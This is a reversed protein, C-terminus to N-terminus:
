SPQLMSAPYVAFFYASFFFSDKVKWDHKSIETSVVMSAIITEVTQDNVTDQSQVSQIDNTSGISSEGIVGKLVDIALGVAAIATRPYEGAIASNIADKAGEKYEDLVSDSAYQVTTDFQFYLAEQAPPMNVQFYKKFSDTIQQQYKAILGDIEHKLDDMKSIEKEIDANSHKDSM